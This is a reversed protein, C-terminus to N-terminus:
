RKRKGSELSLDISWLSDWIGSSTKETRGATTAASPLSRSIATASAGREQVSTGKPSSIGLGGDAASSNSEAPAVAAALSPESPVGASTTARSGDPSATNSAPGLLTAAVGKKSNSSNRRSDLSKSLTKSVANGDRTKKMRISGKVDVHASAVTSKGLGPTSPAGPKEEAADLLYWRLGDSLEFPNEDDVSAGGDSFEGLSRRDSGLPRLGNMSKSLDVVREEVKSIRALLWDRTRLKHSDQERLFYHPAGVNFAAWPRTAQNRTPLFLALDGEAFSRFAIKEHAEQQFRHTKDRYARAEKQWKRALHETDKVRKAMAEGFADLDLRGLVELLTTYKQTETEPDDVQTWRLLDAMEADDLTPDSLLSGSERRSLSTSGEVDVAGSSGGKSVRQITVVGDQRAIQFGLSELLRMLRSTAAYLRQSLEDSRQTRQALRSTTQQLEEELAQIRRSAEVLEGSSARSAAEDAGIQAAMSESGTGADAYQERLTELRRREAKVDAERAALDSRAAALTERLGDSVAGALSLDRKAASLESQMENSRTQLTAMDARAANFARAQEHYTDASREAMAAIAPVLSSLETPVGEEPALRLHAAALHKRHSSLAEETEEVQTELSNIKLELTKKEAAVEQHHSDRQTARERHEALDRRVDDLDTHARALQGELDKVQQDTEMKEHDRSGLVRDLEDEVEELRVNVRAIEGELHKREDVFDRQQAELNDMLDRKMSVAEDKRDEIDKAAEKRALVEKQLGASHEREAILDAELSVIRQVLNKEEASQNSSFRRSSVSSRRSLLEQPRPSPPHAPQTPSTGSAEPGHSIAGQFPHNSVTRSMHTQRHLLDELKRVRSESGKLRDELKVKADRLSVVSEENGRILLSSRGLVADQLSGQKFARARKSQQRTPWDLQRAIQSVEQIAGDMGDINGLVQLYESVEARQVVPLPQDYGQLSIEVGIAKVDPLEPNIFRGINRQWKKRRADEEEKYVALEEAVNSSDAKIKETWERRRISEVLLSGYMVPLRSVMGLLDFAVIGDQGIDLASLQPNVSALMSEISSVKQLRQVANSSAANRREVARRWLAGMETSSRSLSPLYNRTHLLAMKSAQSVSKPTTPLRMVHDYDSSVKKAVVELDELLQASEESTDAGSAAPENHVTEILGHGDTVIRDVVRGLETVRGEFHQSVGRSISAAREVEEFDIFDHLTANENDFTVDRLATTRDEKESRLSAVNLFDGKIPVRSLSRSIKDWRSITTSQEGLLGSAWSKADAHKQQLSRVHTDLNAMAVGVAREVISTEAAQMRIEREMSSCTESLEMAWARRSKFLSQWAQLDTQSSLTDPPDRPAFTAPSAVQPAPPKAGSSPPAILRRDFIFLETEALLTQLKVQRGKATMLIQQSAAVPVRQAIWSRLADLSAFTVPDARLHEGTHALYIHLSM